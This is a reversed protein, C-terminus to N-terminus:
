KCRRDFEDCFEDCTWGFQGLWKTFKEESSIIDLIIPKAKKAVEEYPRRALRRFTDDETYTTM